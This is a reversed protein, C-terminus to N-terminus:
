QGQLTFWAYKGPRNISWIGVCEYGQDAKLLKGDIFWQTLASGIYRRRQDVEAFTIWSYSPSFKLPNTSIVQRRGLCPREAGHLMGSNFVDQLTQVPQNEPTILEPWAALLFCLHLCGQLINRINM